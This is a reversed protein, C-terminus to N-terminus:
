LSTDPITANNPQGRRTDRARAEEILAAHDRVMRAIDYHQEVRARNAAGIARRPDADAALRALQTALSPADRAALYGANAESVMVAIDGVDTAAVPLGAAMAELVSIPMQETDSSLAFIDLGAYLAAVDAAIGLEGALSQLRAREPGDGAVILRAPREARLIAFARLLRAVNKEPRLGAVTGITVAAGDGAAPATAPRFRTLDIGNPIYRLKERPLKWVDEAIALLTRSPLMVLARRLALRRTWVRRPLQHDREEPGFGDEMHIHPVAPFINVLTWEISGWNSTILVDPAIEAAARRMRRLNKLTEGKRISVTPFSVDLSSPLRAGARTDGDMAVIAHRYRAGFREALTIFRAQAGGISFSPFVHLLLPATM